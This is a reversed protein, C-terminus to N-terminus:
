YCCNGDKSFSPLFLTARSLSFSIELLTHHLVMRHLGEIVTTALEETEEAYVIRSKGKKGGQKTGTFYYRFSICFSLVLQNPKAKTRKGLWHVNGTFRTAYVDGFTDNFLIMTMQENINGEVNRTKIIRTETQKQHSKRAKTTGENRRNWGIPLSNNEPRVKLDSDTSQRSNNMSLPELPLENEIRERPEVTFILVYIWFTNM